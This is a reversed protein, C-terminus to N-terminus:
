TAMAGKNLAHQVQMILHRYRKRKAHRQAWPMAKWAAKFDMLMRDRVLGLVEHYKQPQKKANISGDKALAVVAGCRAAESLLKTTKANM